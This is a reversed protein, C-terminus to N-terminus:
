EGSSRFLHDRRGESCCRSAGPAAHVHAFAEVRPLLPAVQLELWLGCIAAAVGVGLRQVSGHQRARLPWRACRVPYVLCLACQRCKGGLRDFGARWGWGARWGMELQRGTRAAWRSFRAAGRGKRVTDNTTCWSEWRKAKSEGQESGGREGRGMRLVLLDEVLM